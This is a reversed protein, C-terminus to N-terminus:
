AAPALERMATSNGRSPLGALITQDWGTLPGTSRNSAALPLSNATVRSSAYQGEAAFLLFGRRQAFGRAGDRGRCVDDASSGFAHNLLCARTFPIGQTEAGIIPLQDLCECNMGPEVDDGHVRVGGFHVLEAALQVFGTQIAVTYGHM